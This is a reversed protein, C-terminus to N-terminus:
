TSSLLKRYVEAYKAAQIDINFEEEVLKRGREGLRQRKQPSDKLAIIFNKIYQVSNPPVLFGNQGDLVIENTQGVDTAIIPKALACAEIISNSIGHHKAPCVYLDAGAMVPIPDLLAGTFVCDSGMPEALRRLEKRIDEASSKPKDGILVLKIDHTKRAELVAKILVDFGQGRGGMRACYCVIFDDDKFHLRDPTVDFRNLDVGNYIVSLPGDYNKRILPVTGKTSSIVHSVGARDLNCSRPGATREIVTKVGAHLAIDRYWQQNGYQVIDPQHFILYNNIAEFNRGFYKAKGVEHFRPHIDPNETAIFHFDFEDKLKLAINYLCTEIGGIYFSQLFYLIKPKNM